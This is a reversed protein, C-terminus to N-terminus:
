GSSAQIWRTSLTHVDWGSPELLRNPGRESATEVMRKCAWRRHLFSYFSNRQAEVARTASSCLVVSLRRSGPVAM